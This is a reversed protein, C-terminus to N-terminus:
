NITRTKRLESSVPSFKMLLSLAGHPATRSDTCNKNIIKM